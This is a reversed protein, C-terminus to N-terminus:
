GENKKVESEYKKILNYFTNRKLGLQEMANKGTIDRNKWKSYISEWDSPFKIAKRGKFKGQEKAIAIGEKQRELLNAREFENIAAIMTLMLKGTPTNTDLNEKVSILNIKKEKLQDIINLLDRTSRAIRSFDLVYINDGERAFDLMEKLKPRNTDKASIKEEFFRDINFNSLGVIQRELSQEDTSVRVYAINM